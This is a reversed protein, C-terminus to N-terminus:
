IKNLKIYIYYFKNYIFCNINLKLSYSLVNSFNIHLYQIKNNSHSGVKQIQLQM